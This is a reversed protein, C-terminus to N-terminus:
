NSQIASNYKEQYKEPTNLNEPGYLSEYDLLISRVTPAYSSKNIAYLECIEKFAIDLYEEAKPFDKIRQYYRGYFWNIYAFTRRYSINNYSQSEKSLQLAKELSPVINDKFSKYEYYSTYFSAINAYNQALYDSYARPNEKMQCM